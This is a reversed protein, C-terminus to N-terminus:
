VGEERKRDNSPLSKDPHIVSALWVSGAIFGAAILWEILSPTYALSLGPTQFAGALGSLPEIGFGATVFAYKYSALGIFVLIGPTACSCEPKKMLAYVPVIIGLLVFIWFPLSSIIIQTLAAKETGGSFGVILHIAEVVVNALVAYLLTKKLRPVEESITERKQLTGVILVMAIGAAIAATIFSLPTLLSNWLVRAAMGGFFMGEALVFGLALVGALYMFIKKSSTFFYGFLCVFFGAYLWSAWALKSSFTPNLFITIGKLPKGLDVGIFALGFLLSSGAVLFSITTVKTPEGKQSWASFLGSWVAGAATGVLLIYLAVWLGWPTYSGYNTVSDGWVFVKGLASVAGAVFLVLLGTKIAKRM